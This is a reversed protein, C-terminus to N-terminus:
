FCTLVQLRRIHHRELDRQMKSAADDIEKLSNQVRQEM